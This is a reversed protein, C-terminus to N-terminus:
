LQVIFTQLTSIKVKREILQAVEIIRLLLLHKMTYFVTLVTNEVEFSHIQLGPTEFHGTQFDWKELHSTEFRPAWNGRPM